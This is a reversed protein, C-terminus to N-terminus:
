RLSNIKCRATMFHFHPLPLGIQARARRLLAHL